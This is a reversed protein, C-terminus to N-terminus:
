SLFYPYIQIKWRIRLKVISWIDELRFSDSISVYFEQLIRKQFHTLNLYEVIFIRRNGCSSCSSSVRGFCVLEGATSLPTRPARDKTKQTTNQLDNNMRKRKAMTNDTRRNLAKSQGKPIQLCKEGPEDQHQWTVRYNFVSTHCCLKM